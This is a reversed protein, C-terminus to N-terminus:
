KDLTKKNKKEWIEQARAYAKGDWCSYLSQRDVLRGEIKFERLGGDWMLYFAKLLHLPIFLLLYLTLGVRVERRFVTDDEELTYVCFPRIWKSASNNKGIYTWEKLSIRKKM